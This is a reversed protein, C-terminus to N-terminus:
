LQNMPTDEQLHESAEAKVPGNTITSKSEDTQNTSEVSQSQEVTLATSASGGLPKTWMGEDDEYDDIFNCTHHTPKKPLQFSTFDGSWSVIEVNANNDYEESSTNATAPKTASSTTTTSEDPKSSFCSDGVNENGTTSPQSGFISPFEAFGSQNTNFIDSDMNTNQWPDSNDIFPNVHPLVYFTLGGDGEGAAANEEDDGDDDENSRGFQFLNLANKM